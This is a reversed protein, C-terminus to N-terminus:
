YYTYHYVELVLFTIRVGVESGVRCVSFLFTFNEHVVFINETHKQRVEVRM